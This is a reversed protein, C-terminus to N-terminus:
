FHKIWIIANLGRSKARVPMGYECGNKLFLLSLTRSPLPSPNAQHHTNFPACEAHLV